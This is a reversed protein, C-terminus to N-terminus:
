VTELVSKGERHSAEEPERRGGTEGCSGWVGDYERYSLSLSPNVVDVRSPGRGGWHTRGGIQGHVQLGAIPVRHCCMTDCAADM